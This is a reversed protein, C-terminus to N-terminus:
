APSIWGIEGNTVHGTTDYTRWLKDNHIGSYKGVRVTGEVPKKRKPWLKLEEISHATGDETTFLLPQEDPRNKNEARIGATAERKSYETAWEPNEKIQLRDDLRLMRFMLKLRELSDQTTHVWTGYSAEGVSGRALDDILWWHEGKTVRFFAMKKDEREAYRSDADTWKYNKWRPPREGCRQYDELEDISVPTLTLKDNM